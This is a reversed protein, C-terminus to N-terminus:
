HCSGSRHLACAIDLPMYQRIMHQTCAFIYGMNTVHSWGCWYPPCRPTDGACAVSLKICMITAVNIHFAQEAKVQVM